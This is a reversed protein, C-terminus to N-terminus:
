GNHALTKIEFGLTPSTKSVDEGCLNKVITTKGANDLGSAPSCSPLFRPPGLCVSVRADTLDLEPSSVFGGASVPLHSPPSSALTWITDFSRAQLAVCPLPYPPRPSVGHSPPDGEGEGQGEQDGDAVGHNGPESRQACNQVLSTERASSTKISISHSCIEPLPWTASITGSAMTAACPFSSPLPDLDVGQYLHTLPLYLRM